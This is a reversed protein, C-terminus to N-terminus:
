AHRFCGGPGIHTTPLLLMRHGPETQSDGHPVRGSDSFTNVSDVLDVSRQVLRTRQSRLQGQNGGAHAGGQYGRSMLKAAVGDCPSEACERVAWGGDKM